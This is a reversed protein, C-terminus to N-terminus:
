DGYVGVRGLFKVPKSIEICLVLISDSSSDKCGQIYKMFTELSCSLEPAGHQNPNVKLKQRREQTELLIKTNLM